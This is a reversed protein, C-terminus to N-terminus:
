PLILTDFGLNKKKRLNSPEIDTEIALSLPASKHHTGAPSYTMTGIVPALSSYRIFNLFYIFALTYM